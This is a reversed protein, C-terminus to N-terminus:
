QQCAPHHLDIELVRFPVQETTAACPRHMRTSAPWPTSSIRIAPRPRAFRMSRVCRRPCVNRTPTSRSWCQSIKTTTPISSGSIRSSPSLNPSKGRISSSRREASWCCANCQGAARRASRAPNIQRLSRWGARQKPRPIPPRSCAYRDFMSSPEASSGNGCRGPRSRRRRGPARCLDFRVDSPKGRERPAVRDANQPSDGPGKATSPGKQYANALALQLTRRELERAQRSARIIGLVAAPQRNSAPEDALNWGDGGGAITSDQAKVVSSLQQCANIKAPTTGIQENGFTNSWCATPRPLSRCVPPPNSWPRPPWPM